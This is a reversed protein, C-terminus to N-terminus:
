SNPENTITPTVTTSASPCSQGGPSMFGVTVDMDPLTVGRDGVPAGTNTQDLPNPVISSKQCASVCLLITTSVAFLRVVHLYQSAKM